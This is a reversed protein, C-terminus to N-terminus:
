GTQAKERCLVLSSQGAIRATCFRYGYPYGPSRDKHQGHVRKPNEGLAAKMAAHRNQAMDDVTRGITHLLAFRGALVNASGPGTMVSTVGAALGEGFCRDDHFIGDIAQLQPTVPDTGENGDDGEIVLGDDFLGVHCHADIFGPLLWSGAAHLQQPEQGALPEFWIPDPKGAAVAAIIGNELVVYGDEHILGAMTVVRAQDIIIRM